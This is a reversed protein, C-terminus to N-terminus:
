SQWRMVLARDANFVLDLKRADILFDECISARRHMRLWADDGAMYLIVGDSFVEHILYCDASDSIPVLDVKDTGLYDFLDFLLRSYRGLDLGGVFEVAIDVDEGFGRRVISGFLVAYYIGYNGWPFMRLRSIVSKDLMLDM